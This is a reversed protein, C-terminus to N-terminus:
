GGTGQFRGDTWGLVFISLKAALVLTLIAFVIGGGTLWLLLPLQLLHVIVFAIRLHARARWWSRVPEASNAVVGATWDLVLLALLATRWDIGLAILTFAASAVGVTYSSVIQFPTPNPGHLPALM